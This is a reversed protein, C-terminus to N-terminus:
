GCVELATAFVRACDVMESIFMYSGDPGQDLFGGRPGYYIEVRYGRPRFYEALFKAAPTEDPSFSPIRILDSALDILADVHELTRAVVQHDM